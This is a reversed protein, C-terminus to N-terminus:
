AGLPPPLILDFDCEWDDPFSENFAVFYDGNPQTNGDFLYTVVSGDPMHIVVKTGPPLVTTGTNILNLGPKAYSNNLVICSVEDIV